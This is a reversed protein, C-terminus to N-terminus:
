QTEHTHLGFNYHDFRAGFKPMGRFARSSVANAARGAAVCRGGWIRLMGEGVFSGAECKRASM